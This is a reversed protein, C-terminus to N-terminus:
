LGQRLGRWAGRGAARSDSNFGSELGLRSRRMTLAGVGSVNSLKAARTSRFLPMNAPQQDVLCGRDYRIINM